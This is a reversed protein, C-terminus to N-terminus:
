EDKKGKKKKNKRKNHATTAVFHFPYFTHSLLFLSLRYPHM